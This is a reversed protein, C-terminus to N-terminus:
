AITNWVMDSSASQIRLWRYHTRNWNVIRSTQSDLVQDGRATTVILVAHLGIRRDYAVALRLLRRDVGAAILQAQKELAIDECDGTGESARAWYEAVGHTQEDNVQRVGRNVSANIAAILRLEDRSNMKKSHAPNEAANGQGEKPGNASPNAIPADVCLNSDRACMDSFGTPPDAREGAHMYRASRDQASAVEVSALAGMALPIVAFATLRFFTM